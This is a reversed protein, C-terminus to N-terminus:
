TWLRDRHKLIITLHYNIQDEYWKDAVLYYAIDTATMSWDAGDFPKIEEKGGHSKLQKKYQEKFEKTNLIFGLRGEDYSDFDKFQKWFKYTRMIDLYAQKDGISADWDVIDSASEYEVFEEILTFMACPLRWTIDRYGPKLGTKVIHYKDYTRYAIWREINKIFPPLTLRIKRWWVKPSEEWYFDKVRQWLTENM